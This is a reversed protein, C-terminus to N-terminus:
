GTHEDILVVAAKFGVVSAYAPLNSAGRATQQLKERLRGRLATQNGADIGSIEVRYAEEIDPSGPQGVYYDAGTRHERCSSADSSRAPFEIVALSVIYAADRTTDDRNNWARLAVADPQRWQLSVLKRDGCCLITLETTPSSHHRALAVDAAEAYAECLAVSVGPHHPTRVTRLDLGKDGMYRYRQHLAAWMCTEQAM